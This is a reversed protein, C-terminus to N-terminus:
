RDGESTTGPKRLLKEFAPDKKLYDFSFIFMQNQDSSRVLLASLNRAKRATLECLEYSKNDASWRRVLRYEGLDECELPLKTTFLYRVADRESQWYRVQMEPTKKREAECFGYAPDGREACRVNALSHTFQEVPATAWAVFAGTPFERPRNEEAEAKKEAAVAERRDRITEGIRRIDDASEGGCVDRAHDLLKSANDLKGQLMADRAAQRASWYESRQERRECSLATLVVLFTIALHPQVRTKTVGTRADHWASSRLFTRPPLVM